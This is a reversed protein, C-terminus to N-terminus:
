RIGLQYYVELHKQAIADWGFGSALRRAGASIRERLGRDAILQAVAAAMAKHDDVPTLLVNEGDQFEPLPVAPQTTVIPLGHALAAHLSGRRLSVGDRYPLLACDSALLAASVEASPLSGTRHVRGALGLERVLYDFYAAYAANTPDSDGVAGGILLLHVPHGDAALVAVARALAEGGKSANLFGFYSVLFDNPGLGLRARWADRHYGPPPAPAINSGIPIEFLAPVRGQLRLRDEANTVVTADSGRALSLITWWRLPGAKPFLYPVRLDHFTTVIWPPVLGQMRWWWPLLNVAPHMGFAAAQYEIQLLDPCLRHSLTKVEQLLGWGPHALRAHVTIAAERDPRHSALARAPALVHVEVGAAALAIGLERTYDGVGGQMPPYEGTILLIRM